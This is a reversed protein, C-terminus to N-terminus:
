AAKAFRKAFDQSLWKCDDKEMKYVLLDGTPHAGKLTTELTFGLHEDFKRAEVNGEGVIGTIRRVGLQEFPYHFCFWLFERNLWSKGTAVVHMCINPGNHDTYAVGARIFGGRKWGIGQAERCNYERSHAIMWEIVHPGIDIM